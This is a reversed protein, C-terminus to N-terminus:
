HVPAAKGNRGADEVPELWYLCLPDHLSEDRLHFEALARPMPGSEGHGPGCASKWCVRYLPVTPMTRHESVM